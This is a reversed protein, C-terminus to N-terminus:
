LTRKKYRSSLLSISLFLFIPAIHSFVRDLSTTVQWKINSPSLIYPLLCTFLYLVITAFVYSLKTNVMKKFNSLIVLICFFWFINWDKFNFLLMKTIGSIIVPLKTAFVAFTLNTKLNTYNFIDNELFLLNKFILWPINILLIISLYKVFIFFSLSKNKRQYLLFIFLILINVLTLALGENKTWAGFGSFLASLLIFKKNPETLGFFLYIVAVFYFFALPLDAYGSKALALLYPIVSLIFTSILALPRNQIKNLQNYFVIILCVYFLSCFLKAFPEYIKGLFVYIYTEMLPILLPYDRHPISTEHTIFKAAPISRELFFIKAKFGYNCWADWTDIKTFPLSASDTLVYIIQFVILSIFIAALLSYYKQIRNRKFNFIIEKDRRKFNKILCFVWFSILTISFNLISFPINLFSFILMALSIFGCGLGFSLSLYELLSFEKNAKLV